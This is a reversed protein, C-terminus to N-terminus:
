AQNKRCDSGGYTRRCRNGCPQNKDEYVEWKVKPLRYAMDAAMRVFVRRQILEVIYSQLVSVAGFFTLFIFLIVSLVVLPQRMGGLAVTNVLSQVAIPTALSLLGSALALIIIRWLDKREIKMMSVLRRFPPMYGDDHHESADMPAKLEVAYWELLRDPEAQLLAILESIILLRIDIGTHNILTAKIRGRSFGSLVLWDDNALPKILPTLNSSADAAQEINVVLESIKLGLKVATETLNETMIGAALKQDHHLSEHASSGMESLLHDFLIWVTHTHLPSTASNKKDTM